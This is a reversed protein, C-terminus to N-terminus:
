ETTDAIILSAVSANLDILMKTVTAAKAGVAIGATKHTSATTTVRNNTADWYLLAGNAPTDDAFANIEFVGSMQLTYDEGSAIPKCGSVVGIRSGEVLVEGAALAGSAAFKKITEVAGSSYKLVAEPM